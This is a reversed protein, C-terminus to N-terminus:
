GKGLARNAAGPGYWQDFQAALAPNAKLASIHNALPATGQPSAQGGSQGQEVWQRSQTDFIRQPDKVTQGDVVRTEGGTVLYRDKAAVDETKGGLVRLTTAAKSREEPTKANLYANQAEELQRAARSKFGFEGQKIALEGQQVSNGLLARAGLGAEQMGTRTTAGADQLQARATAGQDQMEATQGQRTGSTMEGLLAAYAQGAPNFGRAGRGTRGNAQGEQEADIRLNRLAIAEPSRLDSLARISASRDFQGPRFGLAPGPSANALAQQAMGPRFGLGPAEGQQRMRVLAAANEGLGATQGAEVAQMRQVAGLNSDTPVATAASVAGGPRPAGLASGSAPAAAPPVLNRAGLGGGMAEAAAQSQASPQGRNWFSSDNLGAADSFENGRRYVGSISTPGFGAPATPAAPAATRDYDGMARRADGTGVPRPFRGQDASPMNAPPPTAGRPGAFDPGGALTTAADVIGRGVPALPRVVVDNALAPVLAAAGRAVEGAAAGYRGQSALDRINEGAGSMVARTDAMLNSPRAAPAAPAPALGTRKREEDIATAM